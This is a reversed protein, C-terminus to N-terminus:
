LCSLVYFGATLPPVYVRSVLSVIFCLIRSDTISCLCPLSFVRYFMFGTTLPPVYVRYVLSVIFCLIRSDTISCLCSPSFVRHFM